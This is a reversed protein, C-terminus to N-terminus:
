ASPSSYHLAYKQSVGDFVQSIYSDLGDERLLEGLSNGANGIGFFAKVPRLISKVYPSPETPMKKNTTARFQSPISRVPLLADQCRKILISVICRTMPLTLSSFPLLASQLADTRIQLFKPLIQNFSQENRGRPKPEDNEIFDTTEPLMISIEEDWLTLISSRMVKIDVLVAAYQRLSADDAAYNEASTTESVPAPTSSRTISSSTKLSLRDTNKIESQLFSV